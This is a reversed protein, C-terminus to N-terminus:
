KWHLVNIFRLGTSCNLFRWWFGHFHALMNMVLSVDEIPPVVGKEMLSYPGDMLKM